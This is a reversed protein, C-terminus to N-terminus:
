DLLKLLKERALDYDDGMQSWPVSEEGEVEDLIRPVPDRIIELVKERGAVQEALYMIEYDQRGRRINKLRISPLLANVGRDEEPYFPMRGPYFMVGSGNCLDRGSSTFTVPASFVRQHLRGKPGQSNHRWQTGHWYFWTELKAIYQVWGVMRLDVAAMEVTTSGWHPRKGNYFWHRKGTRNMEEVAGMRVNENGAWLDISARLGENYSRTTFVPLRSGPGPNEHIWRAREAIWPHQIEGPEDIIYWFYAIKPANAEFWTVWQDSQSRASAEDAFARRTLSGYIGIPFIKEGQGVGPGRYGQQPTYARGDLYPLYANMLEEAFASRNAEFGGAMDIRHRHGEHKIMREVQEPSLEPYYPEVDSSFMWVTAHNEDPLYHDLLEVELPLTSVLKGEAHVRVSGRYTGSPYSRDRPLHLDIWFGQNQRAAAPTIEITRQVRREQHQTPPIDLPQGGRGPLANAPILADPIWGTMKEPAAAPSEYIWSPPTPNRVHIYHQSFIEITGKPGYNVPTLSGISKGSQSHVPPEVVVEVLKAGAGDAEVIIQFALVENYLGKLRVRNGDWISNKERCSHEADYRFVKEGDGVAWVDSIEARAEWPLISLSLLFTGFTGIRLSWLIKDLARM